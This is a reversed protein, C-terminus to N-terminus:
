VKANQSFRGRHPHFKERGGTGLSKSSPLFQERRPEKFSETRATTGLLEPRLVSFASLALREQDDPVGSVCPVVDGEDRDDGGAGMM